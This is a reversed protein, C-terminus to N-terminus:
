AAMLHGIKKTINYIAFISANHSFKTDLHICARINTRSYINSSMIFFVVSSSCKISYDSNASFLMYNFVSNHEHM